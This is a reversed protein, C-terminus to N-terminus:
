EFREKGTITRVTERAFSDFPKSRGDEQIIWHRVADWNSEALPLVMRHEPPLDQRPWSGSILLIGLSVVAVHIAVTGIFLLWFLAPKRQAASLSRRARPLGPKEVLPSVPSATIHRSIQSSM